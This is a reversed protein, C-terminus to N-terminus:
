SEISENNANFTETENELVEKIIEDVLINVHVDYRLREMLKNIIKKAIVVFTESPGMHEYIIIEKNPICLKIVDIGNHWGSIFGLVYHNIIYIGKSDSICFGSSATNLSIEFPTTM